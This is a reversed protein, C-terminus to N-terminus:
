WSICRMRVRMGLPRRKREQVIDFYKDTIFSPHPLLCHMEKPWAPRRYSWHGFTGVPVDNTCIILFFPRFLLTQLSWTFGSVYQFFPRTFYCYFSLNSGWSIYDEIPLCFYTLEGSLLPINCFASTVTNMTTPAATVRRNRDDVILTSAQQLLRQAGARHCIIRSFDNQECSLEIQISTTNTNGSGPMSLFAQSSTSRDMAQTTTQQKSQLQHRKGSFYNSETSWPVCVYSM